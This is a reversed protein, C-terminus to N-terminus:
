LIMEMDPGSGSIQCRGQNGVRSWARGDQQVVRRWLRPWSVNQPLGGLPEYGKTLWLRPFDSQDSKKPIAMSARDSAM